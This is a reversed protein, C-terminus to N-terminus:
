VSELKYKAELAARATPYYRQAGDFTWHWNFGFQRFEVGADRCTKAEMAARPTPYWGGGAFTWCDFGSERSHFELGADRYTQKEMKCADSLLVRGKNELALWLQEASDFEALTM